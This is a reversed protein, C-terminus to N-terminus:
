KDLDRSKVESFRSVGLSPGLLIVSPSPPSLICPHSHLHVKKVPFRLEELMWRVRGSPYIFPIGYDHASPPARTGAFLSLSFVVLNSLLLKSEVKM